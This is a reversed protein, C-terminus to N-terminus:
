LCMTGAYCTGESAYVNTADTWFIVATTVQLSGQRYGARNRPIGLLETAQAQRDGRRCSRKTLFGQAQAAASGGYTRLFLNPLRAEVRPWGAANANLLLRINGPLRGIRVGAAHFILKALPHLPPVHALRPPRLAWGDRAGHGCRQLSKDVKKM